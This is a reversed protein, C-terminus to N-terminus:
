HVAIEDDPNALYAPNLSIVPSEGDEHHVSSFENYINQAPQISNMSTQEFSHQKEREDALQQQLGTLRDQAEAVLANLGTENKRM